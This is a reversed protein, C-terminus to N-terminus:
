LVRGLDWSGSTGSSGGDCGSASSLLVKEVSFEDSEM